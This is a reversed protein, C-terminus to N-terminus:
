DDFFDEDARKLEYTEAIQVGVNRDVMMRALERGDILVVRTGLTARAYSRADATFSSTTIFIGREAKAGVLAGVFGQIDPRSVKREPAYRKAQVYIVDLGLADQRIVGDLGEDGPGGLHETTAELGGYGIRGLLQLVMRELFVPPKALVRDLIEAAVTSNADDILAAVTETPSLAQEAIADATTTNSKPTRTSRFEALEPFQALVHLDVRQPNAALVDRGRQTISAYGRRPRKLLGTKALYTVAWGVRNAFITVRGSPIMLTRDVPSLDLRAGIRDRLDSQSLESGDALEVLVPRM